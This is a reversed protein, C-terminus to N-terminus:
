MPPPQQRLPRRKENEPIYKNGWVFRAKVRTTYVCLCEFTVGLVPKGERNSCFCTGKHACLVSWAWMDVQDRRLVRNEETCCCMYM